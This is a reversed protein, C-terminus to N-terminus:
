RIDNQGFEKEDMNHMPNTSMEQHNTDLVETKRKLKTMMQSIMIMMLRKLHVMWQDGRRSM